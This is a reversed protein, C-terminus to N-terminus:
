NISTEKLWLHFISPPNHLTGIKDTFRPHNPRMAPHDM